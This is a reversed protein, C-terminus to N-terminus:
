RVDPWQAFWKIGSADVDLVRTRVLERGSDDQEIIEYIRGCLESGCPPRNPDQDWPIEALRRLEALAAERSTFEGFDDSHL